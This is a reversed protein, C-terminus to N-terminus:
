GGSSFQSLGVPRSAAAVEVAAVEVEGGRGEGGGGGADVAVHGGSCTAAGGRHPYQKSWGEM